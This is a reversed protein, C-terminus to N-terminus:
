KNMMQFPVRLLKKLMRQKPSPRKVDDLGAQMTALAQLQRGTRLQLTSLSQMVSLRLTDDGTQKLLGASQQYADVAEDLRGAAELAAAYNGLALAQRHFDSAAAFIAPTGEVVQLAAQPQGAQLFAVSANNDAEAANRTDGATKYSQSAAQFAQAAAAYDGRQYATQGERTLQQPSLTETM